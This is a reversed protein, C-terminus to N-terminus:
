LPCMNLYLLGSSTSKAYYTVKLSEKKRTDQLYYIVLQEKHFHVHRPVHQAGTCLFQVDLQGELGVVHGGSGRGPSVEGADGFVEVGVLLQDHLLLLLLEEGGGKLLVTQLVEVHPVFVTEEGGGHPAPHCTTKIETETENYM